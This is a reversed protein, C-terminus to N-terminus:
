KEVGYSHLERGCFECKVEYFSYSKGCECTWRRNQADLWASEGISLIEKINDKIDRRHRAGPWKAGGDFFEEYVDCPFESCLGCHTLNKDAACLRMKCASCWPTLKSSHCGSCTKDGDSNKFKDSKKLHEGSPQTVMYCDCAGCYLGCAGLINKDSM